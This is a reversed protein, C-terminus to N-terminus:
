VKKRVAASPLTEIRDLDHPDAWTEGALWDLAWDTTDLGWFLEGDIDLTPVGWVGRAIADETNARLRTKVVEDEILPRVDAVGAAQALALWDSEEQLIRGDRWVFRLLERVLELKAGLAIALRQFPLPNFPHARPVTIPVGNRHGLWLAQRYTHRRKAPIEAPGKHEWHNLLGAFLVPVPQVPLKAAVRGLQECQLYAYPSVVDYYWLARSAPETAM